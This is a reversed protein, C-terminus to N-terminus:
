KSYIHGAKIVYKIDRVNTIDELPDSNLIVMDAVKGVEITGYDDEIGLALANNYTAARIVQIKPMKVKTVLLKMEDAVDGETDTGVGIPVGIDFAKKTVLVLCEILSRVREGIEDEWDEYKLLPKLTVGLTVDFVVNNQQMRLLIQETAPANLVKRFASASLTTLTDSVIIEQAHSLSHAEIVAIPGEIGVSGHAWAQLGQKKAERILEIALHGPVKEYLKIADVGFAKSRAIEKPIDTSDTIVIVWPNEHLDLIEVDKLRPDTAMFEPGAVLTAYYVRAMPTTPQLAVEKLEKLRKANGAMDRISTVGKRFMKAITKEAKAGKSKKSEDLIHVHGDILGPILYKGELDIINATTADFDKRINSIELIRGDKIVITSHPKAKAGTGDILTVNVLVISQETNIRVTKM